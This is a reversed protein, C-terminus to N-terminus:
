DAARTAQWIVARWQGERRIFTGSNLYDTQQHSNKGILRFAVVAVEGFVRVEVQEASYQVADHGAPVPGASLVDKMLEAKGFRKGSSSTYILNEDWFAQHVQADNRSAGEMFWDLRQKLLEASNEGALLPLCFFLLLLSFIIRM